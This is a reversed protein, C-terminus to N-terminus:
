IHPVSPCIPAAKAEAPQYRASSISKMVVARMQLSEIRPRAYEVAGTLLRKRKPRLSSRANSLGTMIIALAIVEVETFSAAIPVIVSGDPNAAGRFVEPYLEGPGIVQGSVTDRGIKVVLAFKDDGFEGLSAKDYLVSCAWAKAFLSM